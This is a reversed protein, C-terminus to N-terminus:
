SRSPSMDRKQQSLHISLSNNTALVFFIILLFILLKKIEQFNEIKM